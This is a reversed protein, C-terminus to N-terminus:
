KFLDEAASQAADDASPESPEQPEQPEAGGSTFLSALADNSKEEKAARAADFVDTGPRFWECFNAREKEHVDDADDELCQNPVNPEFFECMM